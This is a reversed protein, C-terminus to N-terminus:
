FQTTKEHFIISDFAFLKTPVNRLATWAGINIYLSLMSSIVDTKTSGDPIIQINFQEVCEQFANKFDSIYDNYLSSIVNKMSDSFSNYEFQSSYSNTFNCIRKLYDKDTFHLFSFWNKKMM